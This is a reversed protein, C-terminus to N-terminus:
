KFWGEGEGRNVCLECVGKKKPLGKRVPMKSQNGKLTTLYIVRSGQLPLSLDCDQESISRLKGEEIQEQPKIM